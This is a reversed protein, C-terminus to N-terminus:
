VALEVSQPLADAGSRRCRTSDSPNRGSCPHRGSGTRHIAELRDAARAHASSATHARNLSSSSCPQIRVPVQDIGSSPPMTFRVAPQSRIATVRRQDRLAKAPPMVSTLVPDCILWRSRSSVASPPKSPLATTAILAHLRHSALEEPAVDNQIDGAGAAQSCCTEYSSHWCLLARSIRRPWDRGTRTGREGERDSEDQDVLM